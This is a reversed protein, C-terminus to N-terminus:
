WKKGYGYNNYYGGYNGYYPQAKPYWYNYYGGYYPQQKGYYTNYGGYYPQPNYSKYGGYYGGGGGPITLCTGARIYNPNHIGNANAIAWVSTGHHAAISSLTEGHRVCHVHGYNASATASPAAIFLGAGLVIALAAFFLRARM